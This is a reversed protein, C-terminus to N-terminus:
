DALLTFAVLVGTEGPLAPRLKITITKKDLVGLRLLAKTVEKALLELLQYRLQIGRLGYNKSEGNGNEEEDPNCRYCASSPCCWYHDNGLGIIGDRGSSALSGAAEEM